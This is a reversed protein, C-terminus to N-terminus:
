IIKGGWALLFLAAVDKAEGDLLVEVQNGNSCRVTNWKMNNKDAINNELWARVEIHQETYRAKYISGGGTYYAVDTLIRMRESM